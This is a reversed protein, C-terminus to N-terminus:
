RRHHGSSLPLTQGCAHHRQACHGGVKSSKLHPQMFPVRPHLPTFWRGSVCVNVCVDCMRQVGCSFNPQLM